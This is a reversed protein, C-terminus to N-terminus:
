SYDVAAAGDAEHAFDGFGEALELAGLSHVADDGLGEDLVLAVAGVLGDVHVVLVHGGLAGVAAGGDDLVHVRALLEHGFLDKGAPRAAAEEGEAATVAGDLLEKLRDGPVLQADVLAADAQEVDVAVPVADDLPDVLSDLLAKNLQGVLVNEHRRRGGLVGDQRQHVVLDALASELQFPSRLLRTHKKFLYFLGFFCCHCITNALNM